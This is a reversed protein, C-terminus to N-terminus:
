SSVGIPEVRNEFLGEVSPRLLVIFTFVALTTGIPVALGNVGAVVLIFIRHRRSSMFRGALFNLFAMVLFGLSLLVGIGFISWGVIKAEAPTGTATPVGSSVSPSATSPPFPAPSAAAATPFSSSSPSPGSSHSIIPSPTSPTVSVVMLGMAVYMLPWLTGVALLGAYVYHFISLLKIHEADKRAKYQLSQGSM